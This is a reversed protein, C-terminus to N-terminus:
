DAAYTATFTFNAGAVGTVPIHATGVPPTNSDLLVWSTYNVGNSGVLSVFHHAAAPTLTLNVTVTEGENVASADATTTGSEVDTLTIPCSFMLLGLAHCANLLSQIQASTPTAAMVLIEPVAWVGVAPSKKFQGALTNSYAGAQTQALGLAVLRQSVSHMTAHRTSDAVVEAVFKGTSVSSCINKLPVASYAKSVTPDAAAPEKALGLQKLATRIADVEAKVPPNTFVDPITPATGGAIKLLNAVPINEYAM